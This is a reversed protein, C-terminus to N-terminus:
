AKCHLSHHAQSSIDARSGLCGEWPTWSLRRIDGCVETQGGGGGGVGGGM